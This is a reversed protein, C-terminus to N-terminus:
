QFQALNNKVGALANRSVEKLAQHVYELEGQTRKYVELIKSSDESTIAKIDTKSQAALSLQDERSKQIKGEISQLLTPGLSDVRAQVEELASLDAKVLMKKGFEVLKATLRNAKTDIQNLAHQNEDKSVCTSLIRTELKDWETQSIKTAIKLKHQELENTHIKLQATNQDVRHLSDEMKHNLQTEMMKADEMTACESMSQKLRFIEGLDAKTKIQEIAAEHLEHLDALEQDKVEFKENMSVDLQNCLEQTKIDAATIANELQTQTALPSLRENTVECNAEYADVHVQLSNQAAAVSDNLITNANNLEAINSDLEARLKEETSALQDLKPCEDAMARLEGLQERTDEGMIEVEGKISSLQSEQQVSDQQLEGLQTEHTQVQHEVVNVKDTLEAIVGDVISSFQSRTEEALKEEADHTDDIRHAMDSKLAALSSSQVEEMKVMQEDHYKARKTLSEIEEAQSGIIKTINVLLTMLKKGHRQSLRQHLKPNLLQAVLNDGDHDGDHDNNAEQKEVEVAVATDVPADEEPAAIATGVAAAEDGAAAEVPEADAM